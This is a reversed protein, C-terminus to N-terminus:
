QQNDNISRHIFSRIIKTQIEFCFLFDFWVLGIISTQQQQPQKTEIIEVFCVCVTNSGMKEKGQTGHCEVTNKKM